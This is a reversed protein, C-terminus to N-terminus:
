ERGRTDGVAIGLVPELPFGDMPLYQRRWPDGGERPHRINKFYLLQRQAKGLAADRGHSLCEM